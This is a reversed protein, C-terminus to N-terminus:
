AASGCLGGPGGPRAALWAAALWAAHPAAAAFEGFECLAELEADLARLDDRGRAAPVLDAAGARAALVRFLEVSRPAHRLLAAVAPRSAGACVWLTRLAADGFEDGLVEALYDVREETEAAGRPPACALVALASEVRARLREGTAGGERVFVGFYFELDHVSAVARDLAPHGGAVVQELGGGDRARVVLRVDSDAIVEAVSRRYAEEFDEGQAVAFAGPRGGDLTAALAAAFEPGFPDAGALVGPSSGWPEWPGWPADREAAEYGEHDSIEEWDAPPDDTDAGTDM